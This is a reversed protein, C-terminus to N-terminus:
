ERSGRGRLYELRERTAPHSAAYDFLGSARGHAREVSGATDATRGGDEIPPRGSREWSELRELMDALFAPSIGQATMLDAAYVDAEREFGRSYRANLLVSPAVAVLSTFDGYIWGIAITLISGQVVLRLGHRGEVHGAEHALVGLVERDDRALRVLADTVVITGSPLAMANAGLEPSDRYLLRYRKRREAPLLREFASTLQRQREMPLATPRLTSGDLGALAADSIRMTVSDPVRAAILRAAFPIFYSYALVALLLLGGITIILSRPTSEWQSAAGRRSRAAAIL